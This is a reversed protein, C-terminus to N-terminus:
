ILQRKLLLFRDARLHRTPYQSSARKRRMKPSLSQLSRPLYKQPYKLPHSRKQLLKLPNRHQHRARQLHVVKQLHAARQLHRKKWLNRHLIMMGPLIRQMKQHVMMKLHTRVQIRTRQNKLLRMLKRKMMLRKLTKKKRIRQM